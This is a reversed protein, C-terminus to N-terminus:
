TIIWGIDTKHAQMMEKEREGKRNIEKERKGM